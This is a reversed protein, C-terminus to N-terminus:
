TAAGTGCEPCVGTTNGSLDYGCKECAGPPRRRDLHWLLTALPGLALVGPWLPLEELGVMYPGNPHRESRFQLNWHPHAGRATVRLETTALEM